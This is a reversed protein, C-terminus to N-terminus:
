FLQKRLRFLPWIHKKCGFKNMFFFWTPRDVKGIFKNPLLFKLSKLVHIVSRKTWRQSTRLEQSKM